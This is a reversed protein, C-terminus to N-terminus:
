TIPVVQNTKYGKLMSDLLGREQLYERSLGFHKLQEWDIMSENFRYKPQGDQPTQAQTTQEQKAMEKDNQNNISQGKGKPTIDYKALFEAVADTKKGAALDEIAQRVKPDDLAQEKVSLIGFRTPDKLQSWLNKVFSEFMNAYRDLKLFSNRNEEKAAVSEYRGNKDLKTVAQLLLEMKDLILIIDSFQENEVVPPSQKPTDGRINEAAM